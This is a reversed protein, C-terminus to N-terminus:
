QIGLQCQWSVAIPINYAEVLVRRENSSMAERIVKSINNHNLFFCNFRRGVQEMAPTIPSIEVPGMDAEVEPDYTM